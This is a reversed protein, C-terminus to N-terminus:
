NVAGPRRCSASPFGHHAGDGDRRAHVNPRPESKGTTRGRLANKERGFRRRFDSRVDILQVREEAERAPIPTATCGLRENREIFAVAIRRNRIGQVVKTEKTLQVAEGLMPVRASKNVNSAFDFV